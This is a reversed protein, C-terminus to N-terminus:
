AAKAHAEARDRIGLMMKREMIFHIPDFFLFRHAGADPGSHSRIILRTTHDDLPELIFAWAGDETHGARALAAFGELSVLVLYRNPEIMAVKARGRGGYRSQPTMWVSDGLTLAPLKPIIHSANRMRAGVLNELWTYSYFGGRDQGIQAIWRWVEEAPAHITMARTATSRAGPCLDDGPLAKGIEADTAGWNLFWPRLALDVAALTAAGAAATTLATWPFKREM